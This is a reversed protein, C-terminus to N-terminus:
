SPSRVRNSRQLGRAQITRANDVLEDPIGKHKTLTEGVVVGVVLREVEIDAERTDPYQPLQPTRSMKSRILAEFIAAESPAHLNSFQWLRCLINYLEEDNYKLRFKDFDCRLIEILKTIKYPDMLEVWYAASFDRVIDTKFIADKTSRVVLRCFYELDKSTYTHRLGAAFAEAMDSVGRYSYRQQTKSQFWADINPIILPKLNVDFVQPIGPGQKLYFLDVGISFVITDLHVYKIIFSM